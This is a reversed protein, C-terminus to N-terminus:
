TFTGVGHPAAAPLYFYTFVYTFVVARSTFPSRQAAIASHQPDPHGRCGGRRRPLDDGQAGARPIVPLNPCPPAPPAPDKHDQPPNSLCRSLGLIELIQACVEPLQGNAGRRGEKQLRAYYRMPHSVHSLEACGIGPAPLAVAVRLRLFAIQRPPPTPPVDFYSSVFSLPYNSSCLCLAPHQAAHVRHWAARFAGPEPNPLPRPGRARPSSAVRPARFTSPAAPFLSQFPAPNPEPLAGLRSLWMSAHSM